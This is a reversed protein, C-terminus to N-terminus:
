AADKLVTATMTKALSRDLRAVLGIAYAIYARDIAIAPESPVLPGDLDALARRIVAAADASHAFVGGTALLLRCPRLDRGLVERREGWTRDPVVVDGTHRSIAVAVAVAALAGDIALDPDGAALHDPHDRRLRAAKKLDAGLSAELRTRLSEGMADVIAPAGARVGLDGEVTRMVEPAPPRARQASQAPAVSHVDTTAGGVDVLVVPEGVSDWLARSVALPTPECECRLMGMLGDLGKARTIHLMFLERIAERSPAIVVEGPAPFVNDVVRVDRGRDTLLAAAESAASRNGAIVIGCVDHLPALRAANHRLAAQNGGDTGGSLLLLHPRARRLREIAGDDLYGAEVAVVKAGAGLVAFTAARGSLAATLGVSAMRLGGAASSCALAWDFGGGCAPPLAAVAQATGLLV